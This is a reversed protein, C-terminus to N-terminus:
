EDVILLRLIYPESVANLGQIPRSNFKFLGNATQTASNSDVYTYQSNIKLVIDTGTIKSIDLKESINTGIEYTVKSFDYSIGGFDSVTNGGLRSILPTVTPISDFQQKPIAFELTKQLSNDEKKLGETTHTDDVNIALFLPPVNDVDSATGTGQAVKSFTGMWYFGEVELTKSTRTGLVASSSDVPLKVTVPNTTSIINYRYEKRGTNM